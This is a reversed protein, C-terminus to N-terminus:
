TRSDLWSRDRSLCASIGLGLLQVQMPTSQLSVQELASSLENVSGASCAAGLQPVANPNYGSLRVAELVSALAEHPTRAALQLHANELLSRLYNVDM